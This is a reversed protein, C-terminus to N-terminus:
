AFFVLVIYSIVKVTIPRYKNGIRNTIGDTGIYVEFFYRESSKFYKTTLYQSVPLDIRKPNYVKRGLSHQRQHQRHADVVALQDEPIREASTRPPVPGECIGHVQGHELSGVSPIFFIQSNKTKRHYFQAM